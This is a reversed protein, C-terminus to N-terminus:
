SSKLRLLWQHETTACVQNIVQPILFSPTALLAHWEAIWSSSKGGLAAAGGAERKRREVTVSGRKILPNTFGWLIGVIIAAAIESAVLM